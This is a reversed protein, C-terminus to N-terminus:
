RTDRSCNSLELFETYSHEVGFQRSPEVLFTSSLEIELDAPINLEVKIEVQQCLELQSILCNSSHSGVTPISLELCGIHEQNSKMTQQTTNPGRRQCELWPSGSIIFHNSRLLREKKIEGDWVFLNTHSDYVLFNRYKRKQRGSSALPFQFNLKLHRATGQRSLNWWIEAAHLM